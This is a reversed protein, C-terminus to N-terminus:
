TRSEASLSFDRYARLFERLSEEPELQPLYELGIFGEYGEKKMFRFVNRYDTEGLWPEHRGPNGAIHAHLVVDEAERFANLLDGNQAQEHYFDFVQRVSPSQLGRALRACEVASPLIYGKHDYRVNLSELLLSVNARELIPLAAQLNERIVSLQTERSEGTDQGVQTIMLSAGLANAKDLSRKLADLWEGAHARENMRFDDACLSVVRVGEGDAIRRAEPIENESVRWFEAAGYGARAIKRIAEAPSLKPFFCPACVCFNM